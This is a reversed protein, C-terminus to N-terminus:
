KGWYRLCLYLVALWGDSINHALIAGFLSGTKEIIMAYFIGLAFAIFVQMGDFSTVAFPFFELSIHALAFIIAALIGASSIPQGFIRFQTTFFSHLIQYILGRFLLEESIGVVISEFILYQAINKTNLDFALFPPWGSAWSSIVTYLSAFFIWGIAFQKIIVLTQHTNQLNIGWTSLPRKWFPLLMIGFVLAAQILHHMTLWAYAFRGALFPDTAYTAIKHLLLYVFFALM